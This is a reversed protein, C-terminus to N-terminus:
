PKTINAGLKQEIVAMLYIVSCPPLQFGSRIVASFGSVQFGPDPVRLAVDSIGNHWM